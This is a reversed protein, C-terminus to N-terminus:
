WASRRLMSFRRQPLHNARLDGHTGRVISLALFIRTIHVLPLAMAHHRVGDDTMMNTMMCGNRVLCGRSGTIFKVTGHVVPRLSLCLTRQKESGSRAPESM